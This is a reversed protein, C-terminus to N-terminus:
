TGPLCKVVEDVRPDWYPAVQRNDLEFPNWHADYRFTDKKNASWWRVPVECYNMLHLPGSSPGLGLRCKSIESVVQEITMGRLDDTGKPALSQNPSGIAIVRKCNMKSILKEWKYLPWNREPQKNKCNRAHICIWDEKPFYPDGYPKGYPRHQARMVKPPQGQPWQYQLQHPTITDKKVPKFSARLTNHAIKYYDDASLKGHNNAFANQCDVTRIQFSHKAPRVSDSFDEYLHEHGKRCLSIFDQSQYHNHRMWRLWPVWMAIEWGFEGLFPAAVIM